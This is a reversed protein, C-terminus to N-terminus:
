LEGRKVDSYNANAFRHMTCDRPEQALVREKNWLPSSVWFPKTIWLAVCYVYKDDVATESYACNACTRPPTM